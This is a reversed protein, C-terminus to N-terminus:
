TFAFYQKILESFIDKEMAEIDQREAVLMIVDLTSVLSESLHLKAFESLIEQKSMEIGQDKAM